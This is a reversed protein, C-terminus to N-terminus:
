EIIIRKSINRSFYLLFNHYNARKRDLISWIICAIVAIMFFTFIEVYNYTTDGSGAPFITIKGVNLIHEGVWVILSKRADTYFTTVYNSYPIYAIIFPFIHLGFYVFIFRFGIKQFINWQTAETKM